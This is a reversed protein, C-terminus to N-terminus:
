GGRDLYLILFTAPIAVLLLVVTALYVWKDISVNKRTYAILLSEMNKLRDDFLDLRDEFVAVVEVKEDMRRLNAKLERVQATLGPEGLPSGALFQEIAKIRQKAETLEDWLLDSLRREHHAPANFNNTIADRGVFDKGAEVDRGVSGGGGTNIGDSV